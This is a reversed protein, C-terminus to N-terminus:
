DPQSEGAVIRELRERAEDVEPLALIQRKAARARTRYSETGLVEVCAAAIADADRGEPARGLGLEAIRQANHPQDGSQPQVVMPVASRMAERIGNYGGHSLFLDSAELMLPQPLFDTVHVHDAYKLEGSVGIGGTVVVAHCDVQSLADLFLQVEGVPDISSPLPVGDRHLEAQMPLSTGLGAYVLPRGDSLEAVWQPLAEGPRTLVPQRYRYVKPWDAATFSFARPVYDIRGYGFLGHGSDPMGLEPGHVALPDELREPDCLLTTGGSVTVHPIDLREAVLYGVCEFDDRLLLDPKFERAIDLVGGFSERWAPSAFVANLGATHDIEAEGDDFTFGAEEMASMSRLIEALGEYADTLPTVVSVPERALAAALPESTVVLVEDGARALARVLPLFKRVHSKSGNVTVLYRM